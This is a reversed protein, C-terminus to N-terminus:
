IIINVFKSLKGGCNRVCDWLEDGNFRSVEAEEDEELSWDILMGYDFVFNNKTIRDNDRAFKKVYYNELDNALGFYAYFAVKLKWVFALVYEQLLRAIGKEYSKIPAADEEDDEDEESFKAANYSDCLIAIFINLLVVSM